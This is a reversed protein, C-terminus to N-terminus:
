QYEYDKRVQNQLVEKEELSCTFRRLRSKSSAQNSFFLVSIQVAEKNYAAKRKETLSKGASCPLEKMAM